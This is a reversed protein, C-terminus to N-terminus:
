PCASIFDSKSITIPTVPEGYFEEPEGMVKCGLQKLLCVTIDRAEILIKNVDMSFLETLSCVALKKGIGVGRLRHDVAFRGWHWQEDEKWAAVVGIIDEGVRACWWLPHYEDNVPILPKPINQEGFFVETALALAQELYNESVREFQIRNNQKMLNDKLALIRFARLSYAIQVITDEEGLNLIQEMRQNSLEDGKTIAEMGLVDISIYKLRKDMLSKEIKIFRKEELNSLIRSISAKDVGLQLALEQFSTSGNM